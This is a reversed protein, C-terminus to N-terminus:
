FRLGYSVRTEREVGQRGTVTWWEKGLVNKVNVSLSHNYRGRRFSYSVFVDTLTTEPRFEEIRNAPGYNLRLENTIAGTGTVESGFRGYRAIYSDTYRVAAGASVGKLPGRDFRYRTTVGWNKKPARLLVVGVSAPDNLSKHTRADVAGIAATFSWNNTVDGFIELEAGESREVGAGIFESVGPPFEGDEGAIFSPNRQPIDERDIRFVTAMWYVRKDIIEGKAGVELGGATINEQLEGTGRDIRTQPDFSSSTNAFAVIKDGLLKVNGGLSWSTENASKDASNRPTLHDDYSVWQHDLRVSAFAIARNELFVMRESLLAGLLKTSQEQRRTVRTLRDSDFFTWDPNRPDLTRMSLPLQNREAIEMQWNNNESRQASGDLTLLLKHGTRGVQFTALLDLQGQAAESPQTEYFPERGSFVGTNVTYNPTTWRKHSFDRQWFQGNARLSLHPSFRHEGRLDFTNIERDVRPHPGYQNFGSKVLNEEIGGIVGSVNAGTVPSRQPTSWAKLIGGTGINMYRNLTEFEFTLSTDKSFQHTVAGSVAWTRNYYFDQLGEFDTYSADLRYFLRNGVLPGTVHAETRQYDYSGFITRFNYSPNRQPRKTIYNVLGGPSSEGFMASLPGKIVEVRDINVVEGVGTRRFGNRYTPPGFGRLRSGGGGGAEVEGPNFSAVFPLQEDLDLLQFNDLLDRKLVTVAIPTEVLPTSIRTSGITENAKVNHDTPATSVHFAELVHVSDDIPPTPAPSAPGTSQAVAATLSTAAALVSIVANGQRMFSM